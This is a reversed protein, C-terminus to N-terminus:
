HIQALSAASEALSYRQILAVRTPEKIFIEGELAIIM